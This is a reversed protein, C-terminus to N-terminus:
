SESREYHRMWCSSLWTSTRSWRSPEASEVCMSLLMGIPTLVEEVIREYDEMAKEYEADVPGCRHPVGCTM